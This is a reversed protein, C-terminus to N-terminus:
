SGRLCYDYNVIIVFSARHVEIAELGDLQHCGRLTVLIGYSLFIVLALLYVLEFDCYAVGLRVKSLDIDSSIFLVYKRPSVQTNILNSHSTTIGLSSCARDIHRLPCLTMLGEITGFIPTDSWRVGVTMGYWM